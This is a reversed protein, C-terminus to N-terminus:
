LISTVTGRPIKKFALNISLIFTYCLHFKIKYLLLHYLDVSHRQKTALPARPHKYTNELSLKEEFARNELHSQGKHEQPTGPAPGGTSGTPMIACCTGMDHCNELPAWTDGSRRWQSMQLAQCDDQKTLSRVNQFPPNPIIM